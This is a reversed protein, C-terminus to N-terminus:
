MVTVHRTVHAQYRENTKLYMLGLAVTAALSTVHTNVVEPEQASSFSQTLRDVTDKLWAFIHYVPSFIKHNGTYTSLSFFGHVVVKM